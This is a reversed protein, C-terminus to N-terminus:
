GLLDSVHVDLARAILLLEAFGPSSVAGEYRQITRRELGTAEALGDQSL